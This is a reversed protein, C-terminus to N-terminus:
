LLEEIIKAIETFTVGADNAEALHDQVSLNVASSFPTDHNGKDDWRVRPMTETLLESQPISFVAHGLVGLCCNSYTGKEMDDSSQDALAGSCQSYEGSRLAELWLRKIDPDLKIDVGQEDRLNRIWDTYLANFLEDKATDAAETTM